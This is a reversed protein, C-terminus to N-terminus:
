IDIPYRRYKGDETPIWGVGVHTKRPAESSGAAGTAGGRPRGRGLHNRGGQPSPGVLLADM